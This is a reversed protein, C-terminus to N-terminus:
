RMQPQLGPGIRYTFGIMVSHAAYNFRMISPQGLSASEFVGVRETAFYRYDANVSLRENVTYSVGAIGQYAFGTQPRDVVTLGTAASHVNVANIWAGGGGGGIYPTFATGTHIDYYVNAMASAVGLHGRLDASGFPSIFQSVANDRWGLEGELRIPGWGYGVTGLVGYGLDTAFDFSGFDDTNKYQPVINFGAGIGLYAGDQASAAAALGATLGAAFIATVPRM